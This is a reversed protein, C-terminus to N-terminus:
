ALVSILGAHADIHAQTVVEDIRSNRGIGQFAADIKKWDPSDKVDFPDISWLVLTDVDMRTLADATTMLKSLPTTPTIVVACTKTKPHFTTAM